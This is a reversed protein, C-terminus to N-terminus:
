GRNAKWIKVGWLSPMSFAYRYLAYVFPSILLIGLIPLPFEKDLLAYSLEGSINIFTLLFVFKWFERSFLRKQYVFGFLGLINLAMVLLIAAEYANELLNTEIEFFVMDEQFVLLGFLFLGTLLWFYLKWLIAM